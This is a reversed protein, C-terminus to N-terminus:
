QVGSWCASNMRWAGSKSCISTLSPMLRVLSHNETVLVLLAGAEGDALDVRHALPLQRRRIQRRQVLPLGVGRGFLVHELEGVGVDRRPRHDLAVVLLAGADVRHAVDETLEVVVVFVTLHDGYGIGQDNSACQGVSGPRTRLSPPRTRNTAVSRNHSRVVADSATVTGAM